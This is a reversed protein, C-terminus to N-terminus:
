WSANAQVTLSLWYHSFHSRLTADFWRRSAAIRQSRQFKDADRVAVRQRFAAKGVPEISGVILVVLCIAVSSRWVRSTDIDRPDCGSFRLITNAESLMIKQNVVRRKKYIIRERFVHWPSFAILESSSLSTFISRRPSGWGRCIVQGMRENFSAHNCVSSLHTGSLGM